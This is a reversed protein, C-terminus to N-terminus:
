KRDVTGNKKLVYKINKPNSTPIWRYENLFTGPFYIMGVPTKGTKTKRWVVKGEFVDGRTGYAFRRAADLTKFGSKIEVGGSTEVSYTTM